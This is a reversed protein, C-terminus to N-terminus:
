ADVREVPFGAERWANIGGHLSRAQTYGKKQLAKTVKIASVDNPCSCYVVIPTHFPIDKVIHHVHRPDVTQAGAIRQIDLSKVLASRADFILPVQAQTLLDALDHPSIRAQSIFIRLRYRILWRYAIYIVLVICFLAFALRGFQSMLALIADIQPAFLAGVMLWGGAWLAAGLTSFVLFRARGLGLAGALPPALTALGPIFKAVILTPAGWRTFSSETQRVCSDASLSIRCLMHLTRHGYRRGAAYWVYDGCLSAIIALGLSMLGLLPNVSALSGVLLLLPLVPIPLGLQVFLVVLFVSLAGYESLLAVLADM